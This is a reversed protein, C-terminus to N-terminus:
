YSIYMMIEGQSLTLIVIKKWFTLFIVDSILLSGHSLSALTIICLCGLSRPELGGGLLNEFM